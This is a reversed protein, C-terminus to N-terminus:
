INRQLIMILVAKWVLIGFLNLQRISSLGSPWYLHMIVIVSYAYLCLKLERCCCSRTSRLNRHVMIACVRLEQVFSSHLIQYALRIAKVLCMGSNYVMIAKLPSLSNRSDETQGILTEAM